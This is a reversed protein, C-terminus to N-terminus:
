HKTAPKAPVRGNTIASCGSEHNVSGSGRDARIAKGALTM